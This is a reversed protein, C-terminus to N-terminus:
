KKSGRFIYIAIGIAAALDLMGVWANPEIVRGITACSGSASGIIILILIYTFAKM